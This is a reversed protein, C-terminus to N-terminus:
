KVIRAMEDGLAKKADEAAKLTKDIWQQGVEKKVAELYAPQGIKVFQDMEDPTPTYIKIGKALCKGVAHGAFNQSMGRSAITAIRGAEIIIRKHKPTQQQFWKENMFMAHINYSHNTTTVFKTTEELKIQIGGGLEPECGDVAGTQMATYLETWTITVPSAGLAKFLALLGKSEPVRIKVGKLDAPSKIPRKNNWIVRFGFGEGWSIVRLGSDKLFQDALDKGWPGDLAHWAYAATPFIFPIQVVLLSPSFITGVSTFCHVIQTSGMQTSEVMERMNGLQGAPYITVEIEGDSMSEVLDKFTNSQAGMCSDFRGPQDVHALRIKVKAWASSTALFVVALCLIWIASFITRKM